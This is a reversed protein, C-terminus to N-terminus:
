KNIRIIIILHIKLEMVLVIGLKSLYEKEKFPIFYNDLSIFLPFILSFKKFFGLVLNRADNEFLIAAGSLM